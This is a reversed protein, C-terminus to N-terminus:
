IESIKNLKSNLLEKIQLKSYKKVKKERILAETKSGYIEVHVLIWPTFNKTYASEGLNHQQIRLSVNGSFGKYYKDSSESYIIYVYFM